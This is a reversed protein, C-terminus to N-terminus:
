RCIFANRIRTPSVSTPGSSIIPSDPLSRHKRNCVSGADDLKAAAKLGRQVLEDMRAKEEKRVSTRGFCVYAIGGLIPLILMLIIWPIKLSPSGDNNVLYVLLFLSLLICFAYFYIFYNSMKLIIMFLLVAQAAILLATVM